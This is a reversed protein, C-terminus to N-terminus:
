KIMSIVVALFTLSSLAIPIIRYANDDRSTLGKSPEVYIVDNNQLHFFESNLSKSDNLNIRHYQKGNESSRILLVNDRKGFITLDGAYGLAELLTVSADPIDYIGPANVEGLITIQFSVMRINVSPKQLYNILESKIIDEAEEITKGSLFVEGVLPLDITGLRSIQYTNGAYKRDVESGSKMFYENTGRSASTISIEILDTPQLKLIGATPIPIEGSPKNELDHFYIVDKHPVCSAILLGLLLLIVHNKM